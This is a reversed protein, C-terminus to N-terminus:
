SQNNWSYPLANQCISVNQTSTVKPNVTLHLTVTSDCGDVSVLVATYTGAATLSQSNWSYPLANQCITINQTSTVKPKVTLHLTVTSDCGNINQLVVTYTGAANLSQNNWNYPLANQCITINQTSTVKSNVTLHLTVTSDCGHINQLVVSYTGDGPISQNNWSYPLANQCITINQTSSVDPNVTLHLTVTSDCGHSNQLVVTYTGDGPISQNNWSYPLANQCVTINQTSSVDPNVALHLTVTSDCGSISQLAATYTGAANLSQSHWNYPLENQCITINQTSTFKPNVSLHLTVTSDCGHSNKLLVTYTGSATLLYMNWNYPLENQCITISQTSSTKPNVTLHLTVTSDCGHTNQLVATYTGAAALSQSNWSYPLANQCININQISTIPNVTVNLYSTGPCGQSNTATVSYVDTSSVLIDPSVAGTSWVYTVPDPSIVNATLKVSGGNGCFDASISVTPSELITIWRTAIVPCGSEVGITYTVIYTGPISNSPIITGTVPDIDLETPSAQYIGGSAGTRTALQPTSLSSCWQNSAYSISASPRTSVTLTANNSIVNGCSNSVMVSYSGADSARINNLTFTEANANLIDAGNKRWQYTFPGTGDVTVAFVPSCGTFAAHNSPQSNIVPASNVTYFLTDSISENFPPGGEYVAIISHTGAPLDAITFAAVGSANLTATGLLIADRWFNVNGTTGPQDVTATFTVPQNFCTTTTSPTLTTTTPIQAQAKWQFLFLFTIVFFIRSIRVLDNPGKYLRVVPLPIINQVRYPM